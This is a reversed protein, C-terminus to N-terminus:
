CCGQGRSSALLMDGTKVILFIGLFQWHGGSPARGGAVRRPSRSATSVRSVALTMQLGAEKQGEAYDVTARWELSFKTPRVVCWMSPYEEFLTIKHTCDGGIKGWCFLM